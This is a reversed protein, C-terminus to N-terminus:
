FRYIMSFLSSGNSLNFGYGSIDSEVPLNNNSLTNQDIRTGTRYNFGPSLEIGCIITDSIKYNIGLIVNLNQTYTKTESLNIEGNSYEFESKNFSYNFGIDVGYRFELEDMLEKRYERGIGIGVGFNNFTNDVASNGNSSNGINLAVSTFRWMARSTGVRYTVGFNDLNRFTLGIEKQRDPEQASLGGVILIGTLLTILKKM